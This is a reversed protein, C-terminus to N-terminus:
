SEVRLRLEEPLEVEQNELWQGFDELRKEMDDTEAYVTYDTIGDWYSANVKRGNFINGHYLKVAETAAAPQTFKVLMVGHPNKAFITIKEVSGLESCEKHIQKELQDLMPDDDDSTPTFIYKLVVIRLGKLGGTIRGNDGDDWGIAQVAALKAVKRKAEAIRPKSSSQLEGKQEFKAPAVALPYQEGSKATPRFYGEDLIRVALDVSEERAYCISADGKLQSDSQRYLKIKPHQTEPDLEIIGVRSFHKGVEEEDTDKPLGTVYIWKAANKARFKAKHQKRKKNTPQDLLPTSSNKDSIPLVHKKWEGAQQSTRTYHTGGDSEYGEDDHDVENPQENCEDDQLGLFEELEKKIKRQEEDALSFEHRNSSSDATEINTYVMDNPDFAEVGPSVDKSYPQQPHRSSFAYLAVRLPTDELIKRWQSTAAMEKDGNSEQLSAIESSWVKTNEDVHVGDDESSPLTNFLMASLERATIPGRVDGSTTLFHWKAAAERLIPINRCPQWPASYAQLDADWGIVLTDANLVVGSTSAPNLMYCIQRTTLPCTSIRGSNSSQYYYVKSLHMDFISTENGNNDTNDNERNDNIFCKSEEKSNIIEESM